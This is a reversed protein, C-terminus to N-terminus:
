IEVTRTKLCDPKHTLKCKAFIRQKLLTHFFVYNEGSNIGLLENAKVEQCSGVWMEPNLEGLRRLTMMGEHAWQVRNM